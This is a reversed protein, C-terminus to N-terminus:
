LGAGKCMNEIRDVIKYEKVDRSKKGHINEGVLKAGRDSFKRTDVMETGGKITSKVYLIRIIYTM